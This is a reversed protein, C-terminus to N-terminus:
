VECTLEHDNTTLVTCTSSGSPTTLTVVALSTDIPFGAGTLTLVTGGLANAYPPSVTTVTLGINIDPVSQEVPM